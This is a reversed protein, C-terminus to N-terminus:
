IKLKKPAHTSSHSNQDNDDESQNSCASLVFALVILLSLIVRKKM